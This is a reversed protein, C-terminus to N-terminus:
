YNDLTGTSLDSARGRSFIRDSKSTTVAIGASSDVAPEPVDLIMTGKALKDLNKRALDSEDKRNEPYEIDRRGYLNAIAIAVSMRRVLNPVTSFPLAYKLTLYSDIEEDADAIARDVMDSDVAGADADDTLRILTEEDVKLLIDDQTCYAM